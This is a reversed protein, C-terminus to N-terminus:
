TEKMHLNKAVQKLYYMIRFVHSSNLEKCWCREATCVAQPVSFVGFRALITYGAM